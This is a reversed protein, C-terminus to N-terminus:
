RWSKCQKSLLTKADPAGKERNGGFGALRVRRRGQGAGGQGAGDDDDTDFSLRAPRKQTAEDVMELQQKLLGIEEDRLTLLHQLERITQLNHDENVIKNHDDIRIWQINWEARVEQVLNAPINAETEIMEDYIKHLKEIRKMVVKGHSYLDRPRPLPHASLKLPPSGLDLERPTPLLPAPTAGESRSM